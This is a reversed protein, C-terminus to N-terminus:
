VPRRAELAITLTAPDAYELNSGAPLGIGIRSISVGLPKMVKTLYLATAEGDADSDTAIIVEQIFEERIRKLLTDIKLDQPGKGEL